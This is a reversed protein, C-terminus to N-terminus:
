PPAAVRKKRGVVMMVVGTGLAALGWIPVTGGDRYVERVTLTGKSGEFEGEMGPGPSLPHTTTTESSESVSRSGVLTWVSWTLGLAAMALGALFMPRV